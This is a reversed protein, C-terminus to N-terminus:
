GMNGKFLDHSLDFLRCFDNTRLPRQYIATIPKEPLGGIFVAKPPEFRPIGRRQVSDDDTLPQFQKLFVPVPLILTDDAGSKLAWTALCHSFESSEGCCNNHIDPLRVESLATEFEKFRDYRSAGMEEFTRFVEGFLDFVRHWQRHFDTMAVQGTILLPYTRGMSDSSSKVIGAMLTKKHGGRTWFRFSHIGGFKILDTEGSKMGADVWSVLANVMSLATNVRIYDSFAPHKGFAAVDPKLRRRSIGLM